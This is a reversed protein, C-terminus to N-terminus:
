KIAKKEKELTKDKSIVEGVVKGEENVVTGDVITGIKNGEKDIITNDITISGNSEGTKFDTSNGDQDIVYIPVNVVIDTNAYEKTNGVKDTAIVTITYSGNPLLKTLDTVKDTEIIKNDVHYIVTNTLTNTIEISYNGGILNNDTIEIFLFLNSSFLLPSIQPLASSNKQVILLFM